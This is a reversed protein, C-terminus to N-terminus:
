LLVAEWDGREIFAAMVKITVDEVKASAHTIVQTPNRVLSLTRRLAGEGIRAFTIKGGGLEEEFAPKTLISYGHGRALLSVITRTADIEQCVRYNFGLRLAEHDLFKRLGHPLGLTILPYSGLDQLSVVPL